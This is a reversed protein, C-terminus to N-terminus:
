SVGDLLTASIHKDPNKRHPFTLNEVQFVCNDRDIFYVQDRGDILMMYRAGDAKWSVKYMKQSLYAIKDRDM